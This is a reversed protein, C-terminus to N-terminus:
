KETNIDKTTDSTSLGGLIPTPLDKGNTTMDLKEGYKRPKMRAMMWQRTEVRLKSRQIAEGNLVDKTTGNRLRREMYDNTGDDAIDLIDERMAEAREEAALEYQKNFEPNDRLWQYITKPAPMGPEKCASRMSMGNSILECFSTAVDQTYESYSIENSNVVGSNKKAM